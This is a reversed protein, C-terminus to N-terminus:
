MAWPEVDFPKSWYDAQEYVPLPVNPNAKGDWTDFGAIVAFRRHLTAMLRERRDMRNLLAVCAYNLARSESSSAIYCRESLESHLQDFAEYERKAMVLARILTNGDM